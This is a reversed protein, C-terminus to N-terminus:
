EAGTMARLCPALLQAAVILQARAQDVRLTDAHGCHSCRSTEAAKALAERYSREAALFELLPFTKNNM